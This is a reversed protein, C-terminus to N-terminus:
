QATFATYMGEDYHTPVNCILVYSGTELEATVEVSEGAGFQESQAVVDLDDTDVAFTAQDVPLQNPAVNTSIVLLDHTITGNNVVSFTVSGAPVSSISPAVTFEELVVDLTTTSGGDGEGGDDDGGCAGALLAVAAACALALLSKRVLM